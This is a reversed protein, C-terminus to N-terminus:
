DPLPQVRLNRYWVASGHHTIAIPSERKEMARMRKIDERKGNDWIAEMEPTGLTVSVVRKGDLWHEIHDGQVVIRGTHFVGPGIPPPDTPALLSYMAGCRRKPDKAEDGADDVIQYELGGTGERYVEYPQGDSTKRRSTWASGRQILYKIGGNAKADVKFEFDLIFNRYARDSWIDVQQNGPVPRLAGDEMRWGSDPFKPTVAARWGSTSTGDLLSVWLPEACLVFPLLGLILRM